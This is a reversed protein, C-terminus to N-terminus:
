MNVCREWCYKNFIDCIGVFFLNCHYNFLRDSSNQESTITKAHFGDTGWHGWIDRCEHNQYITALSSLLHLHDTVALNDVNALASQWRPPLSHSRIQCITSSAVCALYETNACHQSQTYNHFKLEWLDWQLLEVGSIRVPIYRPSIDQPITKVIEANWKSLCFFVILSLILFLQSSFFNSFNHHDQLFM